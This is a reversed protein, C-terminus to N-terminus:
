PLPCSADGHANSTVVQRLKEAAAKLKVGITKRSYGTHVAIEEQTM